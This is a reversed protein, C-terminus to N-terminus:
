EAWVGGTFSLFLTHDNVDGGSVGRFDGTQFDTCADGVGCGRILVCVVCPMHVVFCM